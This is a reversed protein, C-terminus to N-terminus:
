IIEKEEKSEPFLKNRYDFLALSSSLLCFITCFSIQSSVVTSCKIFSMILVYNNCIVLKLTGFTLNPEM